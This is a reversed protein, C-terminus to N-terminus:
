QEKKKNALATLTGQLEEDSLEGVGAIQDGFQKSLFDAVDTIGAEDMGALVAAELSDRDVPAAAPPETVDESQGEIYDPQADVGAPTYDVRVAGDHTMARVVEPSKPLMKALQRVMTKKGMEVFQTVWPGVVTGDKKKAMAYKDRHQEMDARSMVDTMAYGGGKMRAIAYFAVVDGRPGTMPPRHILQDEALGYEYMFEDNEHVTRAAVMNVSDSRYVLEVLGQYGMILQAERRRTKGNWLPLLYAQGLVGPRLGLQACTMLAGLVTSPECETLQPTQRLCTQADRILQAAETGKPMALQFAREMDGIQAAIPKPGNQAPASMARQKLDQAM